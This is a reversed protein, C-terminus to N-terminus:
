FVCDQHHCQKLVGSLNIGVRLRPSAELRRLIVCTAVLTCMINYLKTTSVHIRSVISNTHCTVSHFQSENEEWRWQHPGSCEAKGPSTVYAHVLMWCTAYFSSSYSPSVGYISLHCSTLTHTKVIITTQLLSLIQSVLSLFTVFLLSIQVVFMQERPNRSILSHTINHLNISRLKLHLITALGGDLALKSVKFTLGLVMVPTLTIMRLILDWM